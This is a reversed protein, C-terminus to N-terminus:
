TQEIRWYQNESYYGINLSHGACLSCLSILPFSSFTHFLFWCFLLYLKTFDIWKFYAFLVVDFRLDNNFCNKYSAPIYFQDSHIGSPSNLCWPLLNLSKSVNSYDQSIKFIVWPRVVNQIMNLLSLKMERELDRCLFTLITLM